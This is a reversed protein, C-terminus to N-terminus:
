HQKQVSLQSQKKTKKSTTNIQSSNTTLTVIKPKKKQSALGVGINAMSAAVINHPKLQQNSSMSRMSKDSTVKLKMKSNLKSSNIDGNHINQTSALPQLDKNLFSPTSSEM